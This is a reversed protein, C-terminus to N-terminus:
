NGEGGQLNDYIRQMNILGKGQVYAAYRLKDTTSMMLKKVEANSMSPKMQHILAACGSVVPTAMSTGSLSRYLEGNNEEDSPVALSIIDVGPAIIDPKLVRGPAPGRSSFDAIRDDKHSATNRDDLAGVTIVDPCVGPSTITYRKPGSNGAATVVTIGSEWAAMVAKDLPSYSRSAESGLSVNLVKINYKKRNDVVWQVGAVVDSTNGSGDDKLVKVAVINAEPAIGRYKGDSAYGNGAICGAVHTGHGNDDYPRTKNNVFDKFAIIRNRPITLDPHPAVGTDMVAVTINRGTLWSDHFKPLRITERAIDMRIFVQSDECIYSVEKMFALHKLQEAPIEVALANIIPLHYKINVSFNESICKGLRSLPCDKLYIIVPIKEGGTKKVKVALRPDIFSTYLPVDIMKKLMLLFFLNYLYIM